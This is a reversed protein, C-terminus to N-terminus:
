RSDGQLQLLHHNGTGAVALILNRRGTATDILRMGKKVNHRTYIVARNTEFRKSEAFEVIEPATPSSVTVYDYWVNTYLPETDRQTSEIIGVRNSRFAVCDSMEPNQIVTAVPTSGDCINPVLRDGSCLRDKAGIVVLYIVGPLPNLVSMKAGKPDLRMPEDYFKYIESSNEYDVSLCNFHNLTAYQAMVDSCLNRYYNLPSSM